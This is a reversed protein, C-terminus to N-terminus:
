VALVAGHGVANFRPILRQSGPAAWREISEPSLTGEAWAVVLSTDPSVLPGIGKLRRASLGRGAWMGYLAGAVAGFLTWLIGTVLASEVSGLVGGDGGAFGVIAGWVLGSLGGVPRTSSRM